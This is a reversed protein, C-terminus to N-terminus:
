TLWQKRHGTYLTQLSPLMGAQTCLIHILPFTSLSLHDRRSYLATPTSVSWLLSDFPPATNGVFIHRRKGSLLYRPYILGYSLQRLDGLAHRFSYSRSFRTCSRTAFHYNTNLALVSHQLKKKLYGQESLM